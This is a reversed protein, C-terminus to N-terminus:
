VSKLWKKWVSSWDDINGPLNSIVVSGEAYQLRNPTKLPETSCNSTPPKDM